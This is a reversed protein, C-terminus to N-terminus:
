RIELVYRRIHLPHAEATDVEIMYLGPTLFAPDIALRLGSGSGPLASATLDIRRGDTSVVRVAREGSARSEDDLELVLSLPGAKPLADADLRLRGGSAIRPGGTAEDPM